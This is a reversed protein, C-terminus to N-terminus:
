ESRRDNKDGRQIMSAGFLSGVVAMATVNVPGPVVLGDIVVSLVNLGFWLFFTGYGVVLTFTERNM